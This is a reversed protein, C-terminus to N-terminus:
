SLRALKLNVQDIRSKLESVYKETKIREPGEPMPNVVHQKKTDQYILKNSHKTLKSQLNRKLSTLEAATDPLEVIKESKEFSDAAPDFTQKFLAEDPVVGNAKYSDIAKWLDDMRRSVAEITTKLGKRQTIRQSDNAEGVGKLQKHLLSRQTYLESFEYWTRKVVDPYENIEENRAKQWQSELDEVKNGAPIDEHVTSTPNRFYRLYGSLENRLKARTFSSEGQRLLLTTVNPKYGSAQLFTLGEKFNEQKSNLWVSVQNRLENSANIM